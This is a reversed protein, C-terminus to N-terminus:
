NISTGMRKLSGFNMWISVAKGVINRDPVFGWYRSDDSNDRNDGMMFYHGAPVTCVFGDRDYTCHDRQPFQRVGAPNVGPVDPYVMITHATEAFKERYLGARRMGPPMDIGTATGLSELAVPEGNITLHKRVYAIRDGPVGVVRKILDKSPNEPLRFVMVDGRQPAGVATVPRNIVPLRIGYAFKNVLIFDGVQLTPLMSESPIRFPEYLFSRLFFVVLIVPFFSRAMDVVVPECATVRRPRFVAADLGWIMGTLTAALLLVAAFEMVEKLALMGLAAIFFVPWAIELWGQLPHQRAGIASPTGGPSAANGCTLLGAAILLGSASLALWGLIEWNM